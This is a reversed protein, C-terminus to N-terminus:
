EFLSFQVFLVYRNNLNMLTKLKGTPLNFLLDHGNFAAMALKMSTM